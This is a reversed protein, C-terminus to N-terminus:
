GNVVEQSEQEDSNKIAAALAQACLMRWANAAGDKPALDWVPKGSKMSAKVFERDTLELKAIGGGVTKVDLFNGGVASKYLKECILQQTASMIKRKNVVLILGLPVHEAFGAHLHVIDIMGKIAFNDAELPCVLVGGMALPASQMVSQSPPTDFVVFDYGLNKLRSLAEIGANMGQKDVGKIAARGPILDFGFRTPVPTLDKHEPDWLDVVTCPVDKVEDTKDLAAVTANFQIDLDVLLAKKGLSAALTAIHIAISTKGVGGKQNTVTVFATM